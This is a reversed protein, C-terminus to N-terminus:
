CLYFDHVSMSTSYVPRLTQQPHFFPLVNHKIKNLFISKLACWNKVSLSISTIEGLACRWLKSPLASVNKRNRSGSKPM